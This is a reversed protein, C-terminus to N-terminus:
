EKAMLFQIAYTILRSAYEERTDGTIRFGSELRTLRAACCRGSGPPSGGECFLGCSSPEM